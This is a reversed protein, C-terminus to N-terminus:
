CLFEKNLINNEEDKYFWNIKFRNKDIVIYAGYKYNYNYISNDTRKEMFEKIKQIDINRKIKKDNWWGKFEIILLNNNNTGRKHIILDPIANYGCSGLKKSDFYNRNYEVDIDYSKINENKDAINRLYHAFYFVIGRESVQKIENKKTIIKDFNEEQITILYKDNTYLQTKAKGILKIIDNETIM